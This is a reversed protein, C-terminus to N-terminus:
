CENPATTSGLPTMLDRDLGMAALPDSPASNAGEAPDPVSGWSGIIKTSKQSFLLCKTSHIYIVIKQCNESQEFISFKLDNIQYSGAMM